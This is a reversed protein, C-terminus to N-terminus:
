ERAEPCGENEGVPALCGILRNRFLLIVFCVLVLSIRVVAFNYLVAEPPVGLPRLLFIAGMDQVGIGNISVPLYVIMSVIPLLVVLDALPVQIRHAQFLVFWVVSTIVLSVLALFLNLVIVGKASRYKQFVYRVKELVLARLRGHLAVAAAALALAGLAAGAKGGLSLDLGYAAFFRHLGLSGLGLTVLLMLAKDAVFVFASAKLSVGEKRLLLSLSVPAGLQGPTFYSVATAVMQYALLKGYAVAVFPRLLFFLRIASIVITSLAFAMVMGVEWLSGEVFYRGLERWGVQWTIYYFFFAIVAANLLLNLRKM